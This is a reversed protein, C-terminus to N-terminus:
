FQLYTNLSVAMARSALPNIPNTAGYGLDLAFPGGRVGLGITVMHGLGGIQGGLRFYAPGLKKEAGIHLAIQRAPPAEFVQEVDLAVITDSLAPTDPLLKDMLLAGGLKIGIPESATYNISKPVPVTATFGVGKLDSPLNLTWEAERVTAPWYVLNQVAFGVLFKNDIEGYLGLDVGVGPGIQFMETIKGSVNKNLDSVLDSQLKKINTTNTTIADQIEKSSAIGTVNSLTTNVDTQLQTVKTSLENAKTLATAIDDTATPISTKISDLDAKVKNADTKIKGTTNTIITTLNSPLSDITTKAASISTLKGIKLEGTLAAPISQTFTSYKKDMLGIVSPVPVIQPMFFFKLNAGATLKINENEYVYASGNVGITIHGDAVAKLEISQSSTELPSLLTAIKTIDDQVPKVLTTIQNNVDTSLKDITNVATDIGKKADDIATTSTLSSTNMTQLSKFTNQIGTISDNITKDIDKQLKSPINTAQTVIDSGADALDPFNKVLNTFGSSIGIKAIVAGNVGINLGLAIPREKLQLSPFPHGDFGLLNFQPFAKIYAGDTSLSNFVSSESLTSTVGKLMELTNTTKLSTNLKTYLDLVESVSAFSSLQLNLSLPLNFSGWGLQSTLAPNRIVSLAGNSITLSTGGMGISRADEARAIKSSIAMVGVSLACTMIFTKLVPKM